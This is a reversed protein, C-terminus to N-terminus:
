LLHMFIDNKEFFVFKPTQVSLFTQVTGAKWKGRTRKGTFSCQMLIECVCTMIPKVHAAEKINIKNYKGRNFLLGEPLDCRSDNM